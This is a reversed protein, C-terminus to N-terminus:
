SYLENIDTELNNNFNDSLGNDLMDSYFVQDYERTEILVPMTIAHGLALIQKKSDLSALVNKLGLSNSVGTLVANIDNDDSLQAILKTGIQSVIEPDIGSPRQDVVLLSVYYKRM